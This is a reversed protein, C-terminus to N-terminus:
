RPKTDAPILALNDDAPRDNDQFPM